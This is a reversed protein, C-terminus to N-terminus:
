KPSVQSLIWSFIPANGEAEIWATIGLSYSFGMTLAWTWVFSVSYNEWMDLVIEVM